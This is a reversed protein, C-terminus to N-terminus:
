PSSSDYIVVHSTKLTTIGWIPLYVLPGFTATVGGWGWDGALYRGFTAHMLGAVVGTAIWATRRKLLPRRVAVRRIAQREFMRTSGDPLVVSVSSEDASAFAAKLRRQDRPIQKELLTIRVRRGPDVNQVNSWESRNLRDKGLCELPIALTAGILVLVQLARITGTRVAAEVPSGFRDGLDTKRWMRRLGLKVKSLRPMCDSVGSKDLASPM